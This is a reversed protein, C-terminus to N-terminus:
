RKGKTKGSQGTGAADHLHSIQWAHEKNSGGSAHRFTLREEDRCAMQLDVRAAAPLEQLGPPASSAPLSAVSALPIALALM